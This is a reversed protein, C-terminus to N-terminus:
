IRIGKKRRNKKEMSKRIKKKDRKKESVSDKGQMKKKLSDKEKKDHTKLTEIWKDEIIPIKFYYILCLLNWYLDKM